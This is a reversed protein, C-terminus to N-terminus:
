SFSIPSHSILLQFKDLEFIVGKGHDFKKKQVLISDAM